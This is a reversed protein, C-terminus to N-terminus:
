SKGLIADVVWCGRVHEIPSRCHSLIDADTFGIKELADALGHMCDFRRRDYISQALGMLETKRWLRKVVGRRFTNGFIDRLLDSHAKEISPAPYYRMGHDTSRAEIYRPDAYAASCMTEIAIGWEADPHNPPSNIDAALFAADAANNFGDTDVDEAAKAMARCDKESVQGDAFREGTEVAKQSREDTLLYWIRRCCAVTFLRFKRDSGKGRLFTLMKQPDNCVQWEAETMVKLQSM